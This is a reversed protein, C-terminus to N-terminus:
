VVVFCLLCLMANSKYEFELSLTLPLSGHYHRVSCGDGDDDYDDYDFRFSFCLKWRLDDHYVAFFHRLVKSSFSVLSYQQCAM